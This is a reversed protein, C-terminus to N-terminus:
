CDANGATKDLFKISGYDKSFHHRTLNLAEPQEM